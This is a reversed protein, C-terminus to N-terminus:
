RTTDEFYPPKLELWAQFLKVTGTPKKFYRLTEENWISVPAVFLSPQAMDGEEKEIKTYITLKM